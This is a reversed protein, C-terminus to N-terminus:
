NGIRAGNVVGAVHRRCIDISRRLHKDSQDMTRELTARETPQIARRELADWALNNADVHKSYAEYAQDHVAEDPLLMSLMMWHRHLAAGNEDNITLVKKLEEAETADFAPAGADFAMLSDGNNKNVAASLDNLATCADLQKGFLAQQASVQTMRMAQVGTFMSALAVLVASLTSLGALVGDFSVRQPRPAAAPIPEAAGRDAV